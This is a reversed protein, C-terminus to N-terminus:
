RSDGTSLDLTRSIRFDGSIAFSVSICVAALDLGQLVEFLAPEAPSDDGRCSESQEAEEGDPWQAVAAVLHEEDRMECCKYCEVRRSMCGCLPYWTLAEWSGAQPNRSVLVLSVCYMQGDKMMQPRSRNTRNTLIKRTLPPYKFRSPFFVCACGNFACTSMMDGDRRRMRSKRGSRKEHLGPCTAYRDTGHTLLVGHCACGNEIALMSAPLPPLADRASDVADESSSFHADAPPSASATGVGPCALSSTNKKRTWLPNVFRSRSAAVVEPPVAVNGTYTSPGYPEGGEALPNPVTRSIVPPDPIANVSGSSSSRM